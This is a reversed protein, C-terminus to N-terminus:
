IWAEMRAVVVAGAETVVADVVVAETLTAKRRQRWGLAGNRRQWCYGGVPTRRWLHPHLHSTEEEISLSNLDLLTEMSISVEELKELSSHLLKKVVEKDTIEDGLVCLENTLATIRNSFDEVCEGPKFKIEVFDQRSREVNAEKVPDTGVRIRHISEWAECASEKYALRAQMDAPFTWLLAALAHRDDRYEIGGYHVAEWLETVQLNVHIVVSWETYNTHTLMPYIIRAISKEIV